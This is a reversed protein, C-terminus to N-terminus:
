SDRAAALWEVAGSHSAGWVGIRGDCWPRRRIWRLTDAGDDADNRYPYYEGESAFRGRCDQVVVAYGAGAFLAAISAAGNKNYPTRMLLVPKPAAGETAYADTALRVGDRMPLMTTAKAAQQGCLHHSCLLALLVTWRLMGRLIPSRTAITLLRNLLDDL